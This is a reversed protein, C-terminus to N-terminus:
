KGMRREREIYEDVVMKLDEPTFQPWHKDVFFLESYASQWLLFNSLRKAGGTRIILDPDPMGATWLNKALLEETVAADDAVLREVAQIIEARGGYSLCVWLTVRPQAPSQAETENMLAQLSPRFRERQGVFRVAVGEKALRRIDDKTMAEFIDMLYSVEEESRKWNETSFAYVAIHRIGIDRAALVIPEINEKGRLHGEMAPKGNEKAWRRNGDLIIGICEPVENVM